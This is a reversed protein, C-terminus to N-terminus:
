VSLGNWGHQWFCWSTTSINPCMDMLLLMWWKQLCTLYSPKWHIGLTGLTLSAPPLSLSVVAYSKDIAWLTDEEVHGGLFMYWVLLINAIIAQHNTTAASFYSQYSELTPNPGMCTMDVLLNSMWLSHNHTIAGGRPFNFTPKHFTSNHELIYITHHLDPDTHQFSSSSFAPIPYKSACEHSQARASMSIQLIDWASFYAQDQTGPYLHNTSDLRAEFISIILNFPPDLDSDGNFWRITGALRIASNIAEPDTIHQLIWCVCHANDTNQKQTAELNRVHVRLGPSAPPLLPQHIVDETTIQLLGTHRFRQIVQVLRQKTNRVGQDLQLLLIIAQHGVMTTTSRIGSMIHPLSIEWSLPSQTLSYIRHLALILGHRTNVWITSILSIVKPPFLGALLKWTTMRGGLYRLDASAPTQFPCEYSSTGAVVTGMYFLVGLITLSIVIRAVSTNVLWTYQSLSVTLFILAVQLMVPPSEIFFRFPWRELGDFKRQRDGCREVM